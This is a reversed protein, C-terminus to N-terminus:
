QYIINLITAFVISQVSYRALNAKISEGAIKKFGCWSFSMIQQSHLLCRLVVQSLNNLFLYFYQYHSFGDQNSWVLHMYVYRTIGDLMGLLRRWPHSIFNTNRLQLSNLSSAIWCEFTFNNWWWIWEHTSGFTWKVKPLINGFLCASLDTCSHSVSAAILFHVFWLNIFNNM